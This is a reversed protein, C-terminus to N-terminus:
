ARIPRLNIVITEEADPLLFRNKLIPQKYSIIPIVEWTMQIHNSTLIFLPINRKKIITRSSVKAQLLFGSLSADTSIM